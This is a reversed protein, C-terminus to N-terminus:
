KSKKTVALTLIRLLVHASTEFTKVTQDTEVSLFTVAERDNEIM